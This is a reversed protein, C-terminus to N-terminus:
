SGSGSHWLGAYKEIKGYKDIKRKFVIRTGLVMKGKPRDVVQWVRRAIQGDMERKTASKWYPWEPSAKAESMTAPEPGLQHMAGYLAISSNDQDNSRGSRMRSRAPPHPKGTFSDYLKRVATPVKMRPTVQNKRNKRSNTKERIMTRRIVMNRRIVGWIAGDQRIKRWSVEPRIM